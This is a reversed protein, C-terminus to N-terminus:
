RASGPPRTAAVVNFDRTSPFRQKLRQGDGEIESRRTFGAAEPVNNDVMRGSGGDSPGAPMPSAIFHGLYAAEGARARFPISFYNATRARYPGWSWGYAFIEYDGPPLPQAFVLNIEDSQAADASRANSLEFVFSARNLHPRSKLDENLNPGGQGLPRIDVRASTMPTAAKVGISAFVVGHRAPDAREIPIQANNEAMTACGALALMVPFHGLSKM